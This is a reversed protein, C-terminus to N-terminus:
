NAQIQTESGCLAALGQMASAVKAHEALSESGVWIGLYLGIPSQM